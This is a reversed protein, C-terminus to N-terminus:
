TPSPPHPLSGICSSAVVGLGSVGLVSVVTAASFAPLSLTIPTPAPLLGRHTPITHKQQTTATTTTVTIPVSLAFSAFRLGPAIYDGGVQINQLMYCRYCRPISYM